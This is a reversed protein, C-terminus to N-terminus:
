KIVIMKRTASATDTDIQYYMIGTTNLANSELHFTNYGKIFSGTTQYRLKGEIDFVKLVADGSEPLHFGIITGSNFPNPINQYMEFVTAGTSGTQGASRIAIPNTEIHTNNLLYAEPAFTSRNLEIVDTDKLDKLLRFTMRFLDSRIDVSANTNWSINLVGNELEKYSIFDDSLNIAESQIDFLQVAKHDFKLSMQFGLLNSLDDSKFEVTVLDGAKGSVSNTQLVRNTRSETNPPAINNVKATGNVDGVKVAIFDLGAVNHDLNNMDAKDSFPFPQSPDNFIQAVDVFRWSQNNPFDTHIGLILKRLDVLDAATVKQSNNVDAAIIRYPSDLPQIGLIHRQILVLDLTSVGNLPDANFKPSITYDRYMELNNFLFKGDLSSKVARPFEVQDSMM